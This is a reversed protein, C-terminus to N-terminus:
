INMVGPPACCTNGPLLLICFWLCLILCTKDNEHFTFVVTCMSIKWSLIERGKFKRRRPSCHYIVLYFRFHKSKSSVSFVATHPPYKYGVEGGRPQAPQSHQQEAWSWLGATQRWRYTLLRLWTPLKPLLYSGRGGPARGVDYLSEELRGPASSWSTDAPRRGDALQFSSNLIKLLFINWLILPETQKNKTSLIYLIVAYRRLLNLHSLHYM